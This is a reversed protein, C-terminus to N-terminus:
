PVPSNPRRITASGSPSVPSSRRRTAAPSGGDRLSVGFKARYATNLDQFRALEDPTLSSLGSAAQETASEATVEGALAAKERSIPILASWRRPRQRVGPKWLASVMAQLLGEISHFPARMWAAEAIWASHEFIDSFLAWSGTMTSDGCAGGRDHAVNEKGFAGIVTGTPGRSFRNPALWGMLGCRSSPCFSGDGCAGCSSTLHTAGARELGAGVTCEIQGHPEDTPLFVQNDNELGFPKLNMLLYHKNPCSMSITAIEPVAALAAMGMRYLSDQVSSSYTTAFVTLMTDLITANTAVYDKPASAWDWSALMSTACM